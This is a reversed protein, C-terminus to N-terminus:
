SLASAALQVAIVVFAGAFGLRMGLQVRPRRMLASSFLAAFWGYLAFVLLTLGMFWLSLGILQLTVPGDAATVFAPLFALFFVSLKPNLLNIVIAHRIIQSGHREPAQGNAPMLGNSRLMSAAMYLMYAAGLLALASFAQPSTHFVTAAGSIAVAMHVLLGLTCGLAAHFSALRGQALGIAVTYLSGTGPTAIIILSTVLFDASM